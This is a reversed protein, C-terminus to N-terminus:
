KKKEIKMIRSEGCEDFVKATFVKKGLFRTKIGLFNWERREWYAVADTKNEFQRDSVVVKLKEGDYLVSGKIKVCHTSDSWSQSKPVSNKVADILGSVDTERKATDRYKLTQFVLSEIRNMKINAAKLKKKLEPDNYVIHDKIENQSLVQNSFRLSDYKIQWGVNESQRESEKKYHEKDKWIWVFALALFFILGIVVKKLVSSLVM